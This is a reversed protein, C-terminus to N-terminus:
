VHTEILKADCTRYFWFCKAAFIKFLCFLGTTIYNKLCGNWLSIRCNKEGLVDKNNVGEVQGKNIMHM